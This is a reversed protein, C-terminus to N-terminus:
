KYSMDIDELNEGKVQLKGMLKKSEAEDNVKEIAKKVDENVNEDDDNFPNKISNLAHELEKYVEDMM